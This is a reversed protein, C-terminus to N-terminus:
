AVGVWLYVVGSAGSGGSGGNGSGAGAGGGGGGGGPFGGVGGNNGSVGDVATGAGGGGGSGGMFNIGAAGDTNQLTSSSNGLSARALRGGPGGLGGAGASVGTGKGGGGGGGGGCFPSGQSNGGNSNISGPGGQSTTFFSLTQGSSTNVGNVANGGIVNFLTVWTSGDGIELTTTGGTNGGLGNANNTTAGAGGNGGAGVTARVHSVAAGYIAECQSRSMFMSDIAGSGNGGACGSAQTGVPQRGGGAGGGGGGHLVARRISLWNTPLLQTTTTAFEYFDVAAAATGLQSRAEAATASEALAKGLATIAWDSIQKFRM